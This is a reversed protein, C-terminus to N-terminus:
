FDSRRLLNVPIGSHFIGGDKIKKEEEEEHFLFLETNKPSFKQCGHQNYCQIPFRKRQSHLLHGGKHNFAQQHRTRELLWWVGSLSPPGDRLVSRAHTHSGAKASDGVGGVGAWCLRSWLLGWPLASLGEALTDSPFYSLQESSISPHYSPLVYEM